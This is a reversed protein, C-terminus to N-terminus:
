SIDNMGFFYRPAKFFCNCDGLGRVRGLRVEAKGSKKCRLGSILGQTRLKLVGQKENISKEFLVVHKPTTQRTYINFKAFQSSATLSFSLAHILRIGNILKGNSFLLFWLFPKM